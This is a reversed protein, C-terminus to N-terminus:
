LYGLKEGTTGIKGGDLGGEVEMTLGWEQTWTWSERMCTRQSTGEGETLWDGGGRGRKGGDQGDAGRNQAEPGLKSM